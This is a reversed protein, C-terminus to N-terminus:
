LTKRIASKEFSFQTFNLLNYKPTIHKLMYDFFDHNMKTFRVM